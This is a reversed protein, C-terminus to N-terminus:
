VPIFNYWQDPYRRIVRELAGSVRAAYPGLDDGAVVFSPEVIGLYSAGDRVVFAPLIPAGTTRSLV